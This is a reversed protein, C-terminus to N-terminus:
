STLRDKSHLSRNSRSDVKELQAGAPEVLAKWMRQSRKPILGHERQATTATKKVVIFNITRNANAFANKRVISLEQVTQYPAHRQRM